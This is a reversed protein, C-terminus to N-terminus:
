KNEMRMLVLVLITSLFIILSTFRYALSYSFIESIGVLPIVIIGFSLYNLLGQISHTTARFKKPCHENIFHSLIPLRLGYALSASAYIAGATIGDAFTAAVYIFPTIFTLFLLSPLDGYKKSFGHAGKFGIASCGFVMASIWGIQALSMGREVLFLANVQHLSESVGFLILSIFLTMIIYKNLHFGREKEEIHVVPNKLFFVVILSILHFVLTVQITLALSINALYGGIISAVSAGIPWMAYHIGIEHKYTDEKKGSKLLEYVYAELTGSNLTRSLAGLLAYIIFGTVNMMLLSGTALLKCMKAAIINKTRGKKDSLLGTPIELLAILIAQVGFIVGILSRDPVGEAFILPLVPLFFTLGSVLSNFRLIYLNKKWDEM